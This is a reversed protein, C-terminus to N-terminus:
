PWESKSKLAPIQYWLRLLFDVLFDFNILQPIVHYPSNEIEPENFITGQCFNM